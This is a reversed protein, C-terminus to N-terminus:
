DLGFIWRCNLGVFIVIFVALMIVKFKLDTLYKLEGEKNKTPILFSIAQTYILLAIIKDFFTTHVFYEKYWSFNIWSAKVFIYLMMSILGLIMVGYVIKIVRTTLSIQKNLEKESTIYLLNINILKDVPLIFISGPIPIKLVTNKEVGEEDSKKEKKYRHADLLYIKELKSIDNSDLDYDAVFGTYLKTGEDSDVLVDAFVMDVNKTDLNPKNLTTFARKFKDFDFIEGKLIYFWQNKFRFIKSKRDLKLVRILRASLYGLSISLAYVSLSYLLFSQLNNDVFGISKSSLEDNSLLNKHISFVNSIKLELNIFNTYILLCISQILIGPIISFLFSRTIPEKTTFQKSFESFYYFRFFLLGPIVISVFLAIFGITISM